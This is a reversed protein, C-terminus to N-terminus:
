TATPGTATTLPLNQRHGSAAARRPRLGWTRTEDTGQSGHPGTHPALVANYSSQDGPPAEALDPVHKLLRTAAPAGAIM